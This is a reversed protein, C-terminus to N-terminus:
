SLLHHQYLSLTIALLIAEVRYKKQGRIKISRSIVEIKFSRMHDRRQYTFTDFCPSASSFNDFGPPGAIHRTLKEIYFITGLSYDLCRPIIIFRTGYIEARAALDQNAVQRSHDGLHCPKLPLYFPLWIFWVALGSASQIDRSSVLLKAKPRLSR